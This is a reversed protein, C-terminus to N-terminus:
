HPQSAGAYFPTAPTASTAPNRSGTIKSLDRTSVCDLFLQVLSLVGGSFDLLVNWINWGVTSKRTFNLYAQPIYKILSVALKSYSFFYLFSLWSFFGSAHDAVGCATGYALSLAIFVATM